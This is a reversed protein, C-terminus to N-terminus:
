FYLLKINDLWIEGKELDSPLVAFFTIQYSNAKILFAIESLNLYVKNWEKKPLLVPGYQREPIASTNDPYGILGFAIEVDTKYHLELYVSPNKAQLNGFRRNVDTAIDLINNTKDLQIFGSRNGEFAGNTVVNITTNPNGDLDDTFFTSSQEYNELFGFSVDERYAIKPRITDVTTPELAITQAFANFFPYIEPLTSIGNDKIGAEILINQNGEKLIPVLAPLQYAGLFEGDISIWGETIKQNGTGQRLTNEITFEIPEVYIYAPLPEIPNIFNCGAVLVSSGMGLLLYKFYLM